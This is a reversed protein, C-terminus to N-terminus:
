LGLGSGCRSLFLIVATEASIALCARWTLLVIETGHTSSTGFRRRCSNISKSPKFVVLTLLASALGLALASTTELIVIAIVPLTGLKAPYVISTGMVIAVSLVMSVTAVSCRVLM